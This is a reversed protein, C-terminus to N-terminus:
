SLSQKGSFLKTKLARVAGLHRAPALFGRLPWIQRPVIAPKRIVEIRPDLYDWAWRSLKRMCKFLTNAKGTWPDVRNVLVHVRAQQADNHCFIIAQHEELGLVKLSDHAAEIQEEKAPQEHPPWLISYPFVPKELRRGTLKVGAQAKLRMHASATVEMIWWATDPNDRALNVTQTWAVGDSTFHEGPQRKRFTNAPFATLEHILVFLHKGTKQPHTCKLLGREMLDIFLDLTAPPARKKSM